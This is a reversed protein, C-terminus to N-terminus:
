TGHQSVRGVSGDTSYTVITVVVFQGPATTVQKRIDHEDASTDKLSQIKNEQEVIEREYM